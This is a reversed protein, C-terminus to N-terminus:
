RGEQGFIVAVVAELELPMMIENADEGKGPMRLQIKALPLHSFIITYHITLYPRKDSTEQTGCRMMMMADDEEDM